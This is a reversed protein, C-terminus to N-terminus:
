RSKIITTVEAPETPINPLESCGVTFVVESHSSSIENWYHVRPLCQVILTSTNIKSGVVHQM